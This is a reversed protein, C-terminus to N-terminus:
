YVAGRGYPEGYIYSLLLRHDTMLKGYDRAIEQRLDDESVIGLFRGEAVVPLHSIGKRSMIEFAKRDTCDPSVTVPSWTIVDLLPTTSARRGTGVVRRVFDGETFLGCLYNQHLETDYIVGVARMKGLKMASVAKDVTDDPYLRPGQWSTILRSIGKGYVPKGVDNEM